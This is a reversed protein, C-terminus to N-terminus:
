KDVKNQKFIYGRDAIPLKYQTYWLVKIYTIFTKHLAVTDKALGGPM